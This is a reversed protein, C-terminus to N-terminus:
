AGPINLRECIIKDLNIDKEDMYIEHHFHDLKILLTSIHKKEDETLNGSVIKSVKGLSELASFVASRGAETISVRRSRKDKHDDFQRLLGARILRKIIGTGTTKEHVNKQILEKMSLSEFTILIVLYSFDDISQIANDQLARRAYLKAYRYMHTILIAISTETNKGQEQLAAEHEGAESRMALNEADKPLFNRFSTLSLQQEPTQEEYAAFQTLLEQLVLYSKKM